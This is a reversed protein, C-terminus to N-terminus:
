NDQAVKGSRPRIRMIDSVFDAIFSFRVTGERRTEKILLNVKRWLRGESERILVLENFLSERKDGM